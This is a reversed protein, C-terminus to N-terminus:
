VYVSPFLSLSLAVHFFISYFFFYFPRIKNNNKLASFDMLLTRVAKYLNRSLAYGVLAGKEVELPAHCDHAM